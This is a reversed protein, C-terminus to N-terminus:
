GAIIQVRERILKRLPLQRAERQETPALHGLSDQQRSRGVRFPSLAQCATYREVNLSDDLTIVGGADLNRKRAFLTENDVHVGCAENAEGRVPIIESVCNLQGRFFALALPRDGQQLRQM